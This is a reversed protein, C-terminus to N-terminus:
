VPIVRVLSQEGESAYILLHGDEALLKPETWVEQENPYEFYLKCMEMDWIMLGMSKQGLPTYTSLAYFFRNDVWNAGFIGSYPHKIDVWLMKYADWSDSSTPLPVLIGNVWLLAGYGWNHHTIYIARHELDCSFLIQISLQYACISASLPPHPSIPSDFYSDLEQDPQQNTRPFGLFEMKKATMPENEENAVWFNYRPEFRFNVYIYDDLTANALLGALKQFLSAQELCCPESSHEPFRHDFSLLCEELAIAQTSAGKLHIDSWSPIQIRM